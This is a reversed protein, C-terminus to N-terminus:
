LPKQPIMPYRGYRKTERIMARFNEPKVAEHISNSSSLIYGGGSAADDICRRVERTVDEVTGFPLVSTVDVNGIICIRDGYKEKVNRLSMGAQPEIPHLADIGTEVIDDLISLINGDTHKIVPISHKHGVDVIRKLYPVVFRRFHAPSMFPAKKYAYDDGTVLADVGLDIMAKALEINYRVSTEVLKEVFTPNRYYDLLFNELGRMQSPIEFADQIGGVVAIHNKNIRITERLGKLREPNCPDPLSLAELDEPTVISGRQYYTLRSNEPKRWVRGWEDVFTENDLRRKPIGEDWVTIADLGFDVHTDYYAQPTIECYAHAYVALEYVPVRDPEEHNVAALIREKHTM